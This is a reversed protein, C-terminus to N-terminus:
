TMTISLMKSQQCRRVSNTMGASSLVVVRLRTDPKLCKKAFAGPLIYTTRCCSISRGDGKGSGSERGKVRARVLM